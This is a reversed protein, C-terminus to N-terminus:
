GSRSDREVDWFANWIVDRSLTLSASRENGQLVGCLDPDDRASLISPPVPATDPDTDATQPLRRASVAQADIRHCTPNPRLELGPIRPNSPLVATSILAAATLLLTITLATSRM